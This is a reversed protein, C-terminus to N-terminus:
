FDKVKFPYFRHPVGGPGNTLRAAMSEIITAQYPTECKSPVDELFLDRVGCVGCREDPYTKRRAYRTQLYTEARAAAIDTSYPSAMLTHKRPCRLRLVRVAPLGLAFEKTM